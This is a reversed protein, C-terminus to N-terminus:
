DPLAFMKGMEAMLWDSVYGAGGNSLHIGDKQRMTINKGNYKISALYGGNGSSTINWTSLYVGGAQQAHKEVVSNLRAIRQGYKENRMSPLGILVLEAGAEHAIATMEEVREGYAADWADTGFVALAKGRSNTVSQCDNAGWIAVILDPKHKAILEKLKAAWDFYDKRALGTSQKAWRAVQVGQRQKFRTELQSGLCGNQMLSDGILLVRQPHLKVAPAPAPAPPPEVLPPSPLQLEPPCPPGVPLWMVGNIQPSASALPIAELTAGPLAGDPLAPAASAGADQQATGDSANGQAMAPTAHNFCLLVAALLACCAAVHQLGAPKFSASPYRM